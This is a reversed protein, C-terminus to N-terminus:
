RTEFTVRTGKEGFIRPANWADFLPAILNMLLIAIGIGGPFDFAYRLLGTVIGIALAYFIRAKRNMPSSSYDTVMFVAAFMATGSFVHYLGYTVNSGSFLMGMLFLGALTAVPVEWRIIRRVVLYIFGIAIAWKTTEGIGGGINGILLDTMTPIGDVLTNQGNGIFELPTAVSVADLGPSVWNTMWPTFLIKILVRSFVAPNFHNKGLGGALQKICVIAIFTGLVIIWWPATVPYSLSVLLGTVAASLDDITVTQKTLKQFIYEFLVASFMGLILMLIVRFGFHVVAMVCVPILAIMVDRMIVDTTMPSRLFPAKTMTKM